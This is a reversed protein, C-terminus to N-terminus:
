ANGKFLVIPADTTYSLTISIPNRHGTPLAFVYVGTSSTGARARGTFPAAPSGSMSVSPVGSSDLLNTQVSGLDISRSSRNEIVFTIKLAPGSVEGVGHGRADIERLGVIRASVRNGFGASRNLAVPVATVVKHSPVKNHIGGAPTSTPRLGPTASHADLGSPTNATASPAAQGAPSTGNASSSNPTGASTCASLFMTLGVALGFTRLPRGTGRIGTGTIGAGTIGTGRIGTGTVRAGSALHRACVADRLM